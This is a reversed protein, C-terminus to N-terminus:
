IYVLQIQQNYYIYEIQFVRFERHNASFSFLYFRDGGMVEVILIPRYKRTAHCYQM